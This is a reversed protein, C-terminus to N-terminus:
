PSRNTIVTKIQTFSGDALFDKRALWENGCTAVDKAVATFFFELDTPALLCGFALLSTLVRYEEGFKDQFFKGGFFQWM